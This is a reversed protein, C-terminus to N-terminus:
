AGWGRCMGSTDLGWDFDVEFLIPASGVTASFFGNYIADPFFYPNAKRVGTMRTTTASVERYPTARGNANNPRPGMYNQLSRM